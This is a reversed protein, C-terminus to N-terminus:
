HFLFRAASSSGHFFLYLPLMAFIVFTLVAAIAMIAEAPLLRKRCRVLMVTLATGLLASMVLHITFQPFAFFLPWVGMAGSVLGVGISGFLAGRLALNLSKGDHDDTPAPDHHFIM